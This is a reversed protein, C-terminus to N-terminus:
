RRARSGAADRSISAFSASGRPGAGARAGPKRPLDGRRVRPAHARGVNPIKGKKVMRGLHDESYGSEKAAQRLNLPEAAAARLAQELQLAAEQFAEAAAPAFRRIEDARARWVTALADVNLTPVRDVM